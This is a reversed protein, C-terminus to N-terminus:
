PGEDKERADIVEGEIVEGSPAEDPVGAETRVRRPGFLNQAGGSGLRSELLRRAVPRLLARTPPLVCLLGIVDSIFGPLLLGVAGLFSITGDVIHDGPPRGAAQDAQYARIAKAGFYRMLSMGLMSTVLTALIAWGLGIWRAVAIYAVLECIALLSFFPFRRRRRPAGAPGPNM